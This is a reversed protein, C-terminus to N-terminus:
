VEFGSDRPAMGSSLQQGITRQLRSIRVDGVPLTSKVMSQEKSDLFESMVWPCLAKSWQNNKPTSFNRVTADGLLLTSKSWNQNKLSSSRRFPYNNLRTEYDLFYKILVLEVLRYIYIYIYIYICIYIYEVLPSCVKLLSAFNFSYSFDFLVFCVFMCEKQCTRVCAYLHM